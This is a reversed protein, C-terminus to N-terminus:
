NDENWDPKYTDTCTNFLLHFLATLLPDRWGETAPGPQVEGPTFYFPLLVLAPKLDTTFTHEEGHLQTGKKLDLLLVM